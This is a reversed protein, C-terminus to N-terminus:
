NPEKEYEANDMQKNKNEAMNKATESNDLYRQPHNSVYIDLNEINTQHMVDELNDNDNYLKQSTSDLISLDNSKWCKSIAQRAQLQHKSYPM